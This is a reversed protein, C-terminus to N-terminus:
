SNKRPYPGYLNDINDEGPKRERKARKLRKELTETTIRSREALKERAKARSCHETSMITGIDGEFIRAQLQRKRKRKQHPSPPFFYDEELKNAFLERFVDLPVGSRLLDLIAQKGRDNLENLGDATARERLFDEWNNKPDHAM